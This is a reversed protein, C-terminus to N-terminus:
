EQWSGIIYGEDGSDHTPDYTWVIVSRPIDNTIPAEAEIVNDFDRDFRVYYLGDREHWPNVPNGDANFRSFDVFRLHKPNWAEAAELGQLLRAADGSISEDAPLANTPWTTYTTYYQEWAAELMRAEHRAAVRRSHRTVAKLAPLLFGLLISIIGVVALLELLTFGRRAAAPRAGRLRADARGRGDTSDPTCTTM